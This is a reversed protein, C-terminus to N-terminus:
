LKSEADNIMRTIVRDFRNIVADTVKTEPMIDFIVSLKYNDGDIVHQFMELAAFQIRKKMERADMGEEFRIRCMFDVFIQPNKHVQRLNEMKQNFTGIQNKQRM